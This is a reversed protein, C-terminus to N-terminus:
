ADVFLFVYRAPCPAVDFGRLLIALKALSQAFGPFLVACILAIAPDVHDSSRLSIASLSWQYAAVAPRAAPQQLWRSHGTMMTPRRHWVDNGLSGCDPMECFPAAPSALSM